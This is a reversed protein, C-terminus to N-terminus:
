FRFEKAHDRMFLGRIGDDLNKGEYLVQYCLNCIPMEVNYKEALLKLARCTAVGEAPYKSKQGKYFMEGYIRNRSNQSFLTAEFDGLHSLGYATVQNGGMAVILKSVEYAGRVMLVGKLSTLGAGDLMGAAIGLVNKAASGIEAGVADDGEYFRILGSKFLGIVDRVADRDLGDILMVSPRRKVLEQVHGPGVWIVIKNSEGVSKKVVYTLLEGTEDIIGKMCLIFTKKVPNFASIKATLDKMGQASIAIIIYEAFDLAYELDSTFKVRRPLKLYKNKRTKSIHEFKESGTRGWILANNKLIEAQYWAHFGAWRGCGLITVNM